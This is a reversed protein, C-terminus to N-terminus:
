FKTPKKIKYSFFIALIKYAGGRNFAGEFLRGRFISFNLLRGRRKNSTIRYYNKKKKKICFSGKIGSVAIISFLEVFSLWVQTHNHNCM